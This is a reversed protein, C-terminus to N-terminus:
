PTFCQFGMSTSERGLLTVTSDAPIHQLNNKGPATVPKASEGVASCFRVPSQTQPYLRHGQFAKKFKFGSIQPSSVFLEGM